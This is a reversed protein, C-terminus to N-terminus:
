YGLTKFLQEYTPAVKDIDFKGTVTAFLKEGVPGKDIEGAAMKKLIVFSEEVPENKNVLFGNEGHSIYDEFDGVEKCVIVPKKCLGVEKVASNSAETFSLHMFVDAAAIYDFVNEKRGLLFIRDQLQLREIESNLEKELSGSGLCIFTCDIGEDVLKRIVTFMEKHRKSPVLRAMSLVLLSARFKERIREAEALDPAEYQRFNYGYDVRHVQEKRVKEYEIWFNRVASSPAVKVPTLKNIVTNFIRAKKENLRYDEDTNHRVYILTFPLLKRALGAILAPVQQHAIVIDIKYQRIFSRLGKINDRYFKLKGDEPKTDIAEARVGLKEVYQHLYGRACSTLLVVEHGKQVLMEMVSQQEVTRLNYPFYVLIKM